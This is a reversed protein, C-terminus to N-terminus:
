ELDVAVGLERSWRAIGDLVDPHVLVGQKRRKEMELFGRDGPSYIHAVGPRPASSRVERIMRDVRNRFEDPDGFFSIDIAQFYHSANFFNDYPRHGSGKGTFLDGGSLVSTLIEHAMSLGFAKYGGFPLQVGSAVAENADTTPNGTRDLAWGLPIPQGEAAAQRVKERAAMACAMDLVFPRETAAPAAWSMPNNGIKPTMGGEPPMMAHSNSYAMGVMGARAAMLPYYKVSTISNNARVSVAGIGFERAKAIALEMARAGVVQGLSHHADWLAVAGKDRLVTIKPRPRIVGTKLRELHILLLRMGHSEEGRLDADVFVDTTLAADEPPVGMAEFLACGAQQLAESPIRKFQKAVEARPGAGSMGAEAGGQARGAGM